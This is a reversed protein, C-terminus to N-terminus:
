PGAAIDPEITASRRDHPTILVVFEHLAGFAIASGMLTWPVVGLGVTEVGIGVAGVISVAGLNAAAIQVGIVHNAIGRGVRRPTEAILLPFMPALSAGLVVLGAAGLLPPGPVLIMVTAVIATAVVIRLIRLPAVREALAGFAIRGVTLSGWYLAVWTGAIAEPVGRDLTFLSFAWQGATVEMGTYLFFLAVSSPVVWRLRHPSGGSLATGGDTAAGGPEGAPAGARRDTIWRRRVAFFAVAVTSGFAAFILYGWRWSAGGAVLPTMVIPGITAGVGYFAHLWNLDRPRFHKAGYANLAGDLIGAGTGMVTAGILLLWWAVSGAFLVGGGAMFVASATFLRPYGIRTILIGVSATTSVYGVTFGLILGGLSGLPIGFARSMSPWAVGLMGDPIGLMVFSVFSVSVVATLGLRPLRSTKM